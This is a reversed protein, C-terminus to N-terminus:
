SWNPFTRGAALSQNETLEGVTVFTFGRKQLGALVRPIADVTTKHIDHFLVISGKKPERTGVRVNRAVNPYRWDMSDVDWVIEPMGVAKGVRANTAGYPPRFLTPTVGGSADYIAKQTRRVQSRVADTSLSPLEPHSWTHNGLQHGELAMRRVDAKYEGVNEGLMFFTARAGAAKLVDLLHATYPGPGDDFTLAVCNLHACDMTRQPPPTPTPSPAPARKKVAAAQQRLDGAHVSGCAAIVAAALGVMAGKAARTGRM